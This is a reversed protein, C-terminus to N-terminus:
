VSGGGSGVDDGLGVAGVGPRGAIRVRLQNAVMQCERMREALPGMLSSKGSGEPGELVIFFGGRSRTM